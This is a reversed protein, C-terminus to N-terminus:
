TIKKLQENENTMQWKENENEKRLKENEEKLQKNEVDHQTIIKEEKFIEESMLILEQEDCIDEYLCLGLKEKLKLFELNTVKCSKIIKEFLNNRVFIKNPQFTINPTLEKRYKQTSLDKYKDFIVQWNRKTEIELDRRNIWFYQSNNPDIITELDSKYCSDITIELM